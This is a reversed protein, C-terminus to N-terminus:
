SDGGAPSATRIASQGRAHSGDLRKAGFRKEHHREFPGVVLQRRADAAVCLEPLPSRRSMATSVSAMWRNSGPVVFATARSDTRLFPTIAHCRLFIAFGNRTASAPAPIILQCWQGSPAVGPLADVDDRDAVGVRGLRRLACTFEANRADIAIGAFHESALRDIRRSTADGRSVCAAHTSAAAARPM